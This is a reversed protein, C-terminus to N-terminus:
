TCRGVCTMIRWTFRATSTNIERINNVTCPMGNLKSEPEWFDVVESFEDVDLWM